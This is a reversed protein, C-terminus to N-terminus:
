VHPGGLIEPLAPWPPITGAEVGQKVLDYHLIWALDRRALRDQEARIDKVETALSKREEREAALDEQLQDIRANEISGKKPFLSVISTIVVTLIAVAWGGIAGLEPM